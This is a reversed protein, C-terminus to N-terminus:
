RLRSRESRKELIARYHTILEGLFQAVRPPVANGVQTYRPCTHRRREGGTTYVGHFAFSDPFSQLRAYERVTLIRPESYHVYDDPLTTLTHSPANPALVVLSMKKVGFRKREAASLSVGKRADEHIAEFRAKVQSTHNPLRLSNPAHGNMAGHMQKQYDTRPGRYVIQKFGSSDVCEMRTSGTVRLDSIADEVTVEENVQLGMKKLFASRLEQLHEFPSRLHGDGRFAERRVGVLFFRPRLQPVGLESARLMTPFTKYGRRELARRIKESFPERGKKKRESTFGASIGRVNELLLIKPELIGVLKMYRKFLKNRPDDPNRRGAMSFGQCPPGGVLLDIQGHLSRLQKRYERLVDEVKHAGVPLWSPWEFKPHDNDGDILNAKLTLFANADKEIAFLGKWGAAMLGLSLGGCGAFVDVFIPSSKSKSSLTFSGRIEAIKANHSRPSWSATLFDVDSGMLGPYSM